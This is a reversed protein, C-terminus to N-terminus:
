TCGIQGLFHRRGKDEEMTIKLVFEKGLSIDDEKTRRWQLRLFSCDLVKGLMISMKNTFPCIWTNCNQELIM